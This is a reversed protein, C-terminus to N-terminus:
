HAYTAQPYRCSTDSLKRLLCARSTYFEPFPDCSSLYEEQQISVKTYQQPQETEVTISNKTRIKIKEM